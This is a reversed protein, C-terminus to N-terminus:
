FPEARVAPPRGMLSTAQGALIRVIPHTPDAEFPQRELGRELSSAFDPVTAALDDLMERLEREVTEAREGPM